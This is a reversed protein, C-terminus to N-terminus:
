CRHSHWSARFSCAFCSAAISCHSFCLEQALNIHQVAEPPNPKFPASSKKGWCCFAIPDKRLISKQTNQALQPPEPYLFRTGPVPEPLQNRSSTGPAPEPFWEIPESLNPETGSTQVSGTRPVQNRSGFTNLLNRVGSIRNGLNRFNSQVKFTYKQVEFTYKNQGKFPCKQVKFTYKQGKFTYKQVEFTCYVQKTRQFPGQTSQFYIKTSQFTYKQVKFTYKQARFTYLKYKLFYM